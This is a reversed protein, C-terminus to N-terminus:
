NLEADAANDAATRIFQAVMKASLRYATLREGKVILEDRTVAGAEILPRVVELVPPEREPVWHLARPYVEVLRDLLERQDSTLETLM